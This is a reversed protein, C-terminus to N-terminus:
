LSHAFGGGWIGDSVAVAVFVIVIAAMEVQPHQAIIEQKVKKASGRQIVILQWGHHEDLPPCSSSVISRTTPYAFVFTCHVFRTRLRHHIAANLRFPRIAISRFIIM